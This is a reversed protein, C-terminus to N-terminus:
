KILNLFYICDAPEEERPDAVIALGTTGLSPVWSGVVRLMGFCFPFSTLCASLGNAMWAGVQGMSSQVPSNKGHKMLASVSM